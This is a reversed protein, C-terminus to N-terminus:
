FGTYRSCFTKKSPLVTPERFKRLMDKQFFSTKQRKNIPIPTSPTSPFPFQCQCREFFGVLGCQLGSLVPDSFFWVCM